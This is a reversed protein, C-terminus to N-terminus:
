ADGPQLRSPPAPWRQYLTEIDIESYASIESVISPQMSAVRLRAEVDEAPLGLMAILLQLVHNHSGTSKHAPVSSLFLMSPLTFALPDSFLNVGTTTSV